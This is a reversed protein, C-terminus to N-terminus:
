VYHLSQQQIFENVKLLEKQLDPVQPWVLSGAAYAAAINRNFPIKAIVAIDEQLCYQEVADNGIGDRNIIVALPKDMKRMTEVALKLDNLGFPTPETVLLVLDAQRAAAVVPCSTGPPSDYIVFKTDVTLSTNLFQHTKKILPVAQEQGVLLRSEVFTMNQLPAAGILGLPQPQMPLAQSPCLGSCAHCSHCLENFVLISDGLQMIAHFKCVNTCLGCLTCNEEEWHPILKDVQHTELASQPFFLADNPEEVDLDVLTIHQNQAMLSALNVSVLTKGTGGKGSAVAIRFPQHPNM